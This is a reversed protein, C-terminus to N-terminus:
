NCVQPEHEADLVETLTLGTHQPLKEGDFGVLLQEDSGGLRKLLGPVAEFAWLQLALPFGCLALTEQRLKMCFVGEPDECVGMVREPPLMTKVTWWFSERGWQFELFKKLSKLRKVHKLTPKPEVKSALLVGDVILILCLKLKRSPPLDTGEAVMAAVDKITLDRRGGFLIDWYQYDSKKAPTKDDVVYGPEFEGCPLGTVHGFEALSFKMPQGGFVPWMEFRKKTVVQRTLLGHVMKGSFACRRVPLRFLPGFCSGLLQEFEDTGELVDKVLLLYDLTSNCNLRKSPFRDTAFLRAPLKKDVLDVDSQECEAVVAVFKVGRSKLLLHFGGM